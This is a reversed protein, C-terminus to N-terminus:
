DMDRSPPDLKAIQKTLYLLCALSIYHSLLSNANAQVVLVDLPQLGSSGDLLSQKQTLVKIALGGIIEQAALLNLLLGVLNLMTGITVARRLMHAASSRSAPKNSLRRSLRSGNGWTWIISLASVFIGMSSLVLNPSDKASTTTKAFGLIVTSIVTLIMQSWWSFWSTRQLMKVSEKLTSDKLSFSSNNNNNSSSHLQNQQHKRQSVLVGGLPMGSPLLSSVLSGRHIMSSRHCTFANCCYVACLLVAILTLSVSSRHRLKMGMTFSLQDNHQIATNGKAKLGASVISGAQLVAMVAM